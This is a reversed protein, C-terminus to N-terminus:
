RWSNRAATRCAFAQCIASRPTVTAWSLKRSSAMGVGQAHRGVFPLGGPFPVNELVPRM